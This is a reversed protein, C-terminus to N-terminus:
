DKPKLKKIVMKFIVDNAFGIIIALAINMVGYSVLICMLGFSTLISLITGFCTDNWWVKIDFKGPKIQAASLQTLIFICIGLINFLIFYWEWVEFFMDVTFHELPTNKILQHLTEPSTEKQEM